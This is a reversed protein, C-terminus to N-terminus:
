HYTLLHLMQSCAPRTRAMLNRAIYTGLTGAGLLLCKTQKIQELDLGPTIRWKMLKLNLDVSQDALRRDVTLPMEFNMQASYRKPDLYETLDVMRGTLKGAPNREWGTVKPMPDQVDQPVPSSEAARSKSELTMVVSRGYKSPGDRYRLVQTKDLGWRRKILVLLNRLMWGAAHDYNSPDAFCVYRDEFQSGDFFGDEYASLPAIKWSFGTEVSSDAADSM